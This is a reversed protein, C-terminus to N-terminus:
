LMKLVRDLTKKYALRDERKIAQLTEILDKDVKQYEHIKKITDDIEEVGVGLLWALISTKLESSDEVGYVNELSAIQDIEKFNNDTCLNEILAVLFDAAQYEASGIIDNVENLLGEISDFLKVRPLDKKSENFPPKGNMNYYELLWMAKSIEFDKHKMPHFHSVMLGIRLIKPYQMAITCKTKIGQKRGEDDLPLSKITQSDSYFESQWWMSVLESLQMEGNKKTFLKM